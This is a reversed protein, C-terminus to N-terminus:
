KQQFPSADYQHRCEEGKGSGFCVLCSARVRVETCCRAIVALAGWCPDLRAFVLPGGQEEDNAQSAM